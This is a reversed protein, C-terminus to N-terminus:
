QPYLVKMFNGFDEAAITHPLVVPNGESRGQVEQEDGEPLSFLTQFFESGSIFQYVPVRFLQNEAQLRM